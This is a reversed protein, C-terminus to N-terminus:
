FVVRIQDGVQVRLAAAANKSISVKGNEVHLDLPTHVVRFDGLVTNSVIWKDGEIQEEVSSVELLRSAQVSSISTTEAQMTPGADFVDVYGQHTFGERELLRMAPASSQFPQGIVERAEEALLDIYVPYKPMLDSIFQGGKTAHVMDALKFEMKFFHRCVHEYFPSNGQEDHVGRIEAIVIDSFLHSFQAMLLYRSRSLFPGVGHKRYDKRLFLSGIESAGTYDNVMHLVHHESYINVVQSAQVIMSRKYSYFPRRLGVHAVIGATGVLEGTEDNELVFLFSEGGEYEPRGQFSAVARQIKQELVHSDPPLSTMGIGALQALELLKPHDSSRVPRVVLM